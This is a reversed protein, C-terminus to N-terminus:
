VRDAHPDQPANKWQAMGEAIVKTSALASQSLQAYATVERQVREGERQLYNRLAQLEHMLRDIERTSATSVRQVMANVNASLIDGGTDLHSRRLTAVDRRVFERIEGEVENDQAHAFESPRATKFINMAM